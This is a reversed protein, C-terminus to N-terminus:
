LIESNESSNCQWGYWFNPMYLGITEVDVIVEPGLDVFVIYSVHLTAFFTMNYLMWSM